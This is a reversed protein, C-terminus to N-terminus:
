GTKKRGGASRKGAGRGAATAKKAATKKVPAKKKGAPSAAAEKEDAAARDISAQLAAMLDVVNSPAAATEAPVQPPRSKAKATVLERLAVQYSDQLADLDFDASLREQLSAAMAIEQPRVKVSAPPALGEPSRVEDPWYMTHLALVDGHVRLLALSERSRIAVKTVAVRDTQKLTERLLVYPKTAAAGSPALLYPRDLQLPDIQDADVFALVDILRKSPVPLQELDADTVVAQKGDREVGRAINEWPVTEGCAECTRVQRIRGGDEDHVQHLRLDHEEVATVLEVPVSVLGFGIAGEM